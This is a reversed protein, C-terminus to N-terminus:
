DVGAVVGTALLGLMGLPALAGESCAPARLPDVTECSRERPGIGAVPRPPAASPPAAATTPPGSAASAPVSPPAAPAPPQTLPTTDVPAAPLEGFPHTVVFDESIAESGCIETILVGTGSAVSVGVDGVLLVGALSCYAKTLEDFLQERQARSANLV